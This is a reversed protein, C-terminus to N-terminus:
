EFFMWRDEGLRVVLGELEAQEMLGLSPADVSRVELLRKVASLHVVGDEDALKRLAQFLASPSVTESEDVVSTSTLRTRLEDRLEAPTNALSVEVHLSASSKCEKVLESERGLKAGCHPCRSDTKRQGSCQKCVHCRIVLWRMESM